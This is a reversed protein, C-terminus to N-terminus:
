KKRWGSGDDIYWGPQAKESLMKQGALAAVAEVPAGNRKAIEEYAARRKANVDAVLAKV